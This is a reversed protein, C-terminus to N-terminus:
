RLAGVLHSDDRDNTVGTLGSCIGIAYVASNAIVGGRDYNWPFRAARRYDM